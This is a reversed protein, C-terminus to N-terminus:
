ETLGSDHTTGPQFLDPGVNILIKANICAEFLAKVNYAPTRNLLFNDIRARSVPKKGSQQYLQWVYGHLDQIVDRDSKGSMDKFIEPMLSEIELLWARAREVDYIGITMEDDRSAASVMCLKLFNLIRRPIYHKLKLHQPVPSLKNDYWSVIEAQAEQTIQMEGYLKSIAKMDAIFANQNFHRRKGFLAPRTAEGSYVMLMRSMFGMGWAEPPLLSALFDPQTGALLSVQPNQIVLDEERGRRSERYLARNDFLANMVSMFSLDHAPLLVGLEDAGIQMSHYELMDMGNNLIKIQKSAALNDILSAKTIDDPAVKLIQTRQWIDVIKAIANSKGVGPPAVLLM